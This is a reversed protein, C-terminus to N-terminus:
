FTFLLTMDNVNTGTPGPKLVDDLVSFFTYSDNQKLSIEPQMGLTAARAFTAGTVVAGAGDTVGDEGDTALTVLMVDPFDALDTVASLALELNRGGCGQGQLSVTTEGGALICAPREVPDARHWAWRLTNCLEHAVERAEGQLDTRLLYTNFGEQRAQSLAAQAAMLNNGVILNHVKEFDSGVPKEESSDSKLFDLVSAPVKDSLQYKEFIELADKRNTPDAVTLGSAIAELPDGVVDSLILSVVQAPAAAQALGGGKIRDLQRRLTNIEDIRAGCALLQSNLTQIDALSIGLQPCSVLASGGGSILCIVLDTAQVNELLKFIKEGALLSREDPIPHGSELMPLNVSHDLPIFKAVILGGSVKEGIIHHMAATMAPAAKGIGILFIRDIKRLDYEYEGIRLIDGNLAAWRRVAEGPEVAQIAAALIRQIAAGQPHHSLTYTSFDEATIMVGFSLM